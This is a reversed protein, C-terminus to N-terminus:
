STGGGGSGSSSGSEAARSGRYAPSGGLQPRARLAQPVHHAPQHRVPVVRDHGVQRRTAGHEHDRVSCEAIVACQLLYLKGLTRHILWVIALVFPLSLKWSDGFARLIYALALIPAAALREGLSEYLYEPDFTLDSPPPLATFLAFGLFGLFILLAVHPHAPAHLGRRMEVIYVVGLAAALAFGHLCTNALLGLLIALVVVNRNWFIAAGFVLLPVLVYSRAVLAYQFALFVTFPLTFRVWRPFPALFILLGVGCVAVMGVLWHMATYSVHLRILGHLLLHWLGPSGEYRLAHFFLDHVSLARAMQWAQAEDAWPEHFPIACAVVLTYISLILWEPWLRLRTRAGSEAALPRPLVFTAAM